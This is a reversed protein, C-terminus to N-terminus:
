EIVSWTLVDDKKINIRSKKGIIEDWYKPKIGTGPRKIDLMYETIVVGRPIDVKAILSRRVIIKTDEEDETPKKIGDGLASELDKISQVMEKLNKPELSAKHDPGPLNRNLTFHKEIMCSGLAVSAISAIIGATHDSFGVPVKFACKLTKIARLNVNEMKTPYNSVCHLLIIDNFDNNRIINLGDEVEGLTSMGTSLIIAKKKQAIYRLFPLNTIEGSGIKFAPLNLEYILDASEKDFPTSIFLIRREKAYDALEEFDHKKLELKKLMKYQSENVGIAAKQYKAKEARKTVVAGANFIQFKVADAGADKAIDVLAKALNIDGNHNVGAEAIIFCPEGDGVWRDGIKVKNM